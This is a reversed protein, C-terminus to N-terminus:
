SSKMFLRSPGPNMTVEKCVQKVEAIGFFVRHIPVHQFENLCSQAAAHRFSAEETLELLGCLKVCFNPSVHPKEGVFVTTVTM